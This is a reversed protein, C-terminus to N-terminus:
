TDDYKSTKTSGSSFYITQDVSIASYNYYHELLRTNILNINTSWHMKINDSGSLTRECSQNPTVGKPRRTCPIFNVGSELQSIGIFLIFLTVCWSNKFSQHVNSSSFHLHFFVSYAKAIVSRNPSLCGFIVYVHLNWSSRAPANDADLTSCTCGFSVDRLSDTKLTKITFITCKM